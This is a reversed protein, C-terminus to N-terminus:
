EDNNQPPKNKNFFLRVPQTRILSFRQKIIQSLRLMILYYTLFDNRLLGQTSVDNFSFNLVCIPTM